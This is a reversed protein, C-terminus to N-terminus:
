SVTASSSRETLAAADLTGSFYALKLHIHGIAEIKSRHKEVLLNAHGFDGATIADEGLLWPPAPFSMPDIMTFALRTIDELSRSKHERPLELMPPLGMLRRSENLLFYGSVGKLAIIKGDKVRDYFTSKALPPTFM